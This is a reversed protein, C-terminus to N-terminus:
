INKELNLLRMFILMNPQLSKVFMNDLICYWDKIKSIFSYLVTFFSTVYELFTLVTWVSKLLYTNRILFYWKLNYQIRHISFTNQPNQINDNNILKIKKIAIEYNDGFYFNKRLFVVISRHM